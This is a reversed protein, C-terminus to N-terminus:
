KAAKLKALAKLTARAINLKNKSGSQVKGVIDNVGALEALDRVASGAVLGRGKSPQISVIASAYKAEVLHPISNGTTRPVTVLHKKADKIAKEIALATDGAKGIGVGVKGKRDGIAMAVSFSFRRGGSSVRTVRRINLMRQDYESRAQPKRAPRRNKRFSSGGQGQGRPSRRDSRAPADAAVPADSQQQVAAETM